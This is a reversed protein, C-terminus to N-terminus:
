HPLLSRNHSMDHNFLSKSNRNCPNHCLHRLVQTTKMPV